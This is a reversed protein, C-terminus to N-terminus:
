FHFSPHHGDCFEGGRGIVFLCLQPSSQCFCQVSIINQVYLSMHTFKLCFAVFTLFNTLLIAWAWKQPM